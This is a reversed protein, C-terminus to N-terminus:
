VKECAFTLLMTYKRDNQYNEDFMYWGGPSVIRWLLLAALTIFKAHVRVPVACVELDYLWVLHAMHFVCLSAKRVIELFM